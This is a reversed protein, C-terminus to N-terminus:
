ASVTAKESDDGESLSTHTSIYFQSTEKPKHTHQSKCVRWKGTIVHYILFHSKTM